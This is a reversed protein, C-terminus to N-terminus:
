YSNGIIKGQVNKVTTLEFERSISAIELADGKKIDECRKETEIYALAKDLAVSFESADVFFNDYDVDNLSIGIKYIRM